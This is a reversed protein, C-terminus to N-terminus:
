ALTRLTRLGPVRGFDTDLTLVAAEAELACSAIVLDTVQMVKGQRDLSWALKAAREWINNLTPVYLMCEMFEAMRRHPGQQKVGRLVEVQVVGCTILEWDDSFSALEELPDLGARLRDIFFSSDVLVNGAM